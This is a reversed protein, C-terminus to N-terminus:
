NLKQIHSFYKIPQQIRRGHLKFPAQDLKQKNELVNQSKPIWLFMMNKKYGGTFKVGAIHTMQFINTFVHSTMTDMILSVCYPIPLQM